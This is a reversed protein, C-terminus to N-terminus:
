FRITGGANRRRPSKWAVSMHGVCDDLGPRDGAGFLKRARKTPTIVERLRGELRDDSVGLPEPHQHKVVTIMATHVVSGIVVSAPLSAASSWCTLCISDNPM